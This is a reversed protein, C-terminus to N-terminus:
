KRTIWSEVEEIPEPFTLRWEPSWGESGERAPGFRYPGKGLLSRLGSLVEGPVRWDEAKESLLWGIRAADTKGLAGAIELVAGADVYAFASTARVVEELGGARQPESLCDCLTQEKTTANVRGAPGTRVRRTRMGEEPPYPVYRIGGYDFASRIAGTRFERQFSVNHAVGLVDLATHYCVTANPDIAAIVELSDPPGKRYPGVKSVYLGRRARDVKGDRAAIRLQEKASAASDCADLLDSAKFVHNIAIYESFKVTCIIFRLYM